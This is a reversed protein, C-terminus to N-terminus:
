DVVILWSTFLGFLFSRKERVRLGSELIANEIDGPWNPPHKVLMWFILSAACLNIYFVPLLWPKPRSYDSILLIGGPKLLGRLKGLLRIRSEQGFCNLFFQAAVFDYRPPLGLSAIDGPMEILRGSWGTEHVLNRTQTIMEAAIDNVTLTEPKESRVYAAPFAGPGCGVVLPNRPPFPLRGLFANRAKAIFGLNLLEIKDYFRAAPGYNAKRFEGPAAEPSPRLPVEFGAPHGMAPEARLFPANEDIVLTSAPADQSKVM